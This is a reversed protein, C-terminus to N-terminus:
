FNEFIEKPKDQFFRGYLRNNNDYKFLDFKYTIM